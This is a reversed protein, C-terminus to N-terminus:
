CHQYKDLSSFPGHLQVDSGSVGEWAVRAFAKHFPVGDMGHYEM